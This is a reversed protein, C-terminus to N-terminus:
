EDGLKKRIATMKESLEARDREIEELQEDIVRRDLGLKITEDYLCDSEIELITYESEMISKTNKEADIFESEDFMYRAVLQSCLESRETVPCEHCLIGRCGHDILAKLQKLTINTM